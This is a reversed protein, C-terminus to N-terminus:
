HLRYKRKWMEPRFSSIARYMLNRVPFVLVRFCTEDCMWTRALRFSRSIWAFSLTLLPFSPFKIFNFKQREIRNQLLKVENKRPKKLDGAIPRRRMENVLLVLFLRQLTHLLHWRRLDHRGRCHVRRCRRGWLDAQDRRWMRPGPNWRSVGVAAWEPWGLEWM